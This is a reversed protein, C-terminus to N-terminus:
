LFRPPRRLVLLTLVLPAITAASLILALAAVEEERAFVVHAYLRHTLAQQGARLMILTDIERLALCFSLCWAVLLPGRILPLTVTWAARLPGAGALRAADVMAPDLRRLAAGIPMLGFILTRGVMAIVVAGLGLYIADLGPRNLMRILGIGYLLPPVALPVAIALELLIPRRLRQAWFLLPVALLVIATASTGGAILTFRLAPLALDFQEGLTAWFAGSQGVQRVLSAIPLLTGLAVWLAVPILVLWRCGGLRMRPAPEFRADVAAGLRHRRDLAWGLLVLAVVGGPLAAGAAAGARLGLHHAYITDGYVTIKPGVSTLFDAVAFDALILILALAAGVLASPLAQRLEDVMVLRKGGILRMTEAHSRGIQDLARMAMLMVLPTYAIVFVAVIAVPGSQLPRLWDAGAFVGVAGFWGLVHVLPPLFLPWPALMLLANRGPLDTRVLLWALLLGVPLAIALTAAALLLTTAFRSWLLTDLLAELALGPERLLDGLALAVPLLGVLIAVLVALAVVGGAVVREFIM